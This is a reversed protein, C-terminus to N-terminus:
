LLALENCLYSEYKFGIDKLYWYHCIHYEKSTNTKSLDIGGSIDIRDDELM